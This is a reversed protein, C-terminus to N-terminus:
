HDCASCKNYLSQQARGTNGSQRALAMEGACELWNGRLRFLVEPHGKLWRVAAQITVGTLGSPLTAVLTHRIRNIQNDGRDVARVHYSRASNYGSTTELSSLSEAGEATWGSADIEFSSNAILNVGNTIVQVDDILCEGVGQLLVQLQDAAVNGNDLTGTTSVVTWPAKQTEDSDAWTSPLRSNAHPDTRELSSGGGDSWKSWRGGSNYTVEDVIIQFFNTTVVMGNTSLLSDPKRLTVREGRGSLSGGLDGLVITPNVTPYNTLFRARQNAVVLYGNSAIITNPPFAFSVGGGLTWGGVNIPTGTRNYLEIYQDGNDESIPHYMLENIVVDSVLVAANNTGPTKAALRYFQEGGDPSRGMSIGNDQGDFRVADIVRTRAPNKFYITEGDAALSFGLTTQNFSVFGNAPITVSPIVFKDVDADDTLVCGTLSVAQPGPNYLEIYDQEPDDTHALFENIVVNRLADPTYPDLRGPSGGVADSAAWARPDNEGLSPRALVMSHGAGDAAAPWPPNDSYDVRLFVGGAQNILKVTGSDNPLSNTFPGLVGSIGYANQLDVPSKAVVLFGGGPIVTGPPFNYDASGRLKYGSLDEPEGRSNFIEVYELASNTPHYMIESIVLSTRRSCQGLPEFTLPGNVGPSTVNGFDRFAGTSLQSTNHSSVAFGLYITSPMAIGVTGLQTWNQGDFGAYGTFSSGVRQLRLWTNPYNVPFSGALTTAGNTAGRSQFYCGSISPTAMVSASRGGPTLDERAIMGAESWAEALSLSNLRVKVDFDGTRPVYSFQFQDSTGGIDAGGGSINLGNGAPIQSGAPTAGGINVPVYVSAFFNTQSNLAIVNAAASQDTLNNVTLTYPAGDTMTAVTLVVNSQGSDLAANFITVVGNTGVLSYNGANNATGPTIRETFSVQVQTLGASQAGILVPRNTDAIVTLTAPGSTVVYSISNAMNSAVLRYVANHDALTAIFSHSLNTAGPAPVGNRLWQLSPFPVGGAVGSLNATSSESVTANTPSQLITAPSQAAVEGSIAYIATSNGSSKNFTISSLTKNTSGLLAALDITTQYLRPNGPNGETAGTALSIREFGQLAFNANNFWDQANYTTTYSSGDLFNLTLNPTGGGSASNAIIAIRGYTEPTVLTLTGATLGTGSSLVLANSSTYPQLQFTTGDGLASVFSGSVPL